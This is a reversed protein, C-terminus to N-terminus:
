LWSRPLRRVDIARGKGTMNGQQMKAYDVIALKKKKGKSNMQAERIEVTSSDARRRFGDEICWNTDEHYPVWRPAKRVKPDQFDQWFWRGLGVFKHPVIRHWDKCVASLGLLALDEEQNPVFSFILAAVDVPLSPASSGPSDVADLELDALDEGQRVLFLEQMPQLYRITTADVPVGSTTLLSLEKPKKLKFKAAAAKTLVEPKCPVKAKVLQNNRRTGRCVRCVVIREMTQL